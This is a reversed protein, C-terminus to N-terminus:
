TASERVARATRLRTGCACARRSRRCVGARSLHYAITSSSQGCTSPWGRSCAQRPPGRRAREAEQVAGRSPSSCARGSTPLERGDLGEQSRSRARCGDWPSPARPAAAGILVSSSSASPWWPTPDGTRLAQLESACIATTPRASGSRSRGRWPRPGGARRVRPASGRAIASLRPTGRREAPAHAKNWCRVEAHAEGDEHQDPLGPWGDTLARSTPGSWRWPPVTGFRSGDPALSVRPPPSTCPPARMPQLPLAHPVPSPALLPALLLPPGGRRCSTPAIPQPLARPPRADLGLLAPSRSHEVGSM